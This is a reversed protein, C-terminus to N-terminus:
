SNQFILSKVTVPFVQGNVLPKGIDIWDGEKLVLEDISLLNEKINTERRIINGVSNAIDKEFVLVIPIQSNISEKLSIEIAQAFLKLRNYSARVPDKFYLAVMEEGEKLDFRSLSKYIEEKVHDISLKNRDIDVRIVPLNRIPFNLQPDLFSTSGSISLSYAGAGIVTARIKNEPEIIDAKFKPFQQVIKHAIPFGIDNYGNTQGYIFEAVGGSFSIEDIQDPFNLDDTLMLDLALESKAPGVMVEILIDAFKDAILDIQQNNIKDGIKLDVGLYNMVLQAPEDIRIIIKKDDFALLRGGVSICSTSIIEGKSSIALNSTGGGIDVSLIINQLEQSRSTVGSGMAAIMSEFNPGATASVFKGADESLSAVIERANHKKATEGTVIIAGTNIEDFTIGASQYEDKLFHTLKAMDINNKDVLPTD